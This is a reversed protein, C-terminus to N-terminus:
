SGAMLLTIGGCAIAVGYPLPAGRRIRWREARLIRGPAFRTKRAPAVQVVRSLVIYVVALAGGCLATLVLLSGIDQPPVVLAAAGLLKADGGGMMGRRWCLIGCCFVLLAFAVSRVISGDDFRLILGVLVLGACVTNPIIRFAIDQAAAVALLVAAGASITFPFVLPMSLM